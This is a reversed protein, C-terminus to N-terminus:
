TVVQIYGYINVLLINRTHKRKILQTYLKVFNIELTKYTISSLKLEKTYKIMKNKM